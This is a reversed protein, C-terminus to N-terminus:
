WKYFVYQLDKTENENINSHSNLVLFGNQTINGYYDVRGEEANISFTIKNGDITYSGIGVNESGRDFWSKIKEPTGTSTANIVVGGSYFRFYSAAIGGYPMFYVGDYKITKTSKNDVSSLPKDPGNAPSPTTVCAMIMFIAFIMGWFVVKNKM